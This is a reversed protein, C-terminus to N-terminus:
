ELSKKKVKFLKDYNIQFEVLLGHQLKFVDAARGYIIQNNHLELGENM